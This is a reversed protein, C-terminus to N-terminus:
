SCKNGWHGEALKDNFVNSRTSHNEIEGDGALLQLYCRLEVESYCQLCLTDIVAHLECKM